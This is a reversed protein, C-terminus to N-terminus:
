LGGNLQFKSNSFMCIRFNWLSNTINAKLVPHVMCSFRFLPTVPIRNRGILLCSVLIPSQWRAKIEMVNSLRSSSLLDLQFHSSKQIWGEGSVALLYDPYISGNTSRKETWEARHSSCMKNFGISLKHEGFTTYM